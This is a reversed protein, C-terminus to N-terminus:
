YIHLLLCIIQLMSGNAFAECINTPILDLLTDYIGPMETVTVSDVSESLVVGDGPRIINVWVLGITIALATTITFLLITKLGISRLRKLDKLEAMSSVISFFVLPVIVMRILHIFVNGLFSMFDCIAAIWSVDRGGLFSLILGFIIGAVLALLIIQWMKLKHKKKKKENEM